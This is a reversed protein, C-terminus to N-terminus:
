FLISGIFKLVLNFLEPYKKILDDFRKLYNKEVKKARLTKLLEQAENLDEIDKINHQIYTEIEDISSYNVVNNDGINFGHSDTITINMSKRGTISKGNLFEWGKITLIYSDNFPGSTLSRPNSIIILGNKELDKLISQLAYGYSSVLAIHGFENNDIETLIRRIKNEYNM